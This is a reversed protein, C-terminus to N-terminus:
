LVKGMIPLFRGAISSEKKDIEKFGKRIYFHTAHPDSEVIMKAYGLDKATKFAHQILLNGCGQGIRDPEIFLNDLLVGNMELDELAYYGIIRGHEVLKYLVNSKIYDVTIRLEPMWEEIQEKPYDWYSKSRITLDTLLKADSTHVEVIDVKRYQHDQIRGM